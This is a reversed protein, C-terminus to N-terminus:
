EFMIVKESGVQVIQFINKRKETNAQEVAKGIRGNASSFQEETNERCCSEDV